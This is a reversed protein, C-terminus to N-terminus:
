AILMSFIWLGYGYIFILIPIRALKLKQKILLVQKTGFFIKIMWFSAVVWTFFGLLIFFYGSQKPLADLSYLKEYILAQSHLEQRSAQPGLKAEALYLVILANAKEVLDRRPVYFSRAALLGGRLRLLSHYAENKEGRGLNKEAMDMLEDAAKQSSGWPAYWNLAQFYHRNAKQLDGHALSARAQNLENSAQREFFIVLFILYIAALVLVSLSIKKLTNNM